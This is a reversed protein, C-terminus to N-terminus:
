LEVYMCSQVILVIIPMSVTNLTAMAYIIIICIIYTCIRMTLNEELLESLM